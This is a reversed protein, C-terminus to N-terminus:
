RKGVPATGYFHEVAPFSGERVAAAYAEISQQISSGIDGFRRVFKATKPTMGLMDELVLIQGDCADSAGIGIVPARTARVIRRSLPEVVAELVMAFAGAQEVALADQEIPGPLNAGNSQAELEKRGQARFGGLTHISQPTLGIHGMVPIGRSTLFAITDGMHCGGELKVAGCGTEQMIRSASDFAQEKSREYTGFPMDVVVMARFSGAVVARGHLIMMELTVPLTSSFGYLVNGLSDGVLLIDCYPDAAQASHFHYATLAVVREKGKRDFVEPATLRKNIASHSM